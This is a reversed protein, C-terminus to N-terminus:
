ATYKGNVMIEANDGNITLLIPDIGVGEVGVNHDNRDKSQQVAADIQQDTVSPHLMKISAKLILEAEAAPGTAYVRFEDYQYATM